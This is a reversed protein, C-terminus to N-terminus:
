KWQERDKVEIMLFCCPCEFPKREQGMPPMPPVRALMDSRLSSSDSVDSVAGDSAGDSIGIPAIDYMSIDLSFPTAVTDAFESKEEAFPKEDRDEDQQSLAEMALKEKHEQTYQLFRRRSLVAQLLRDRLIPDAKQFLEEIHGKDTTCFRDINVKEAKVYRDVSAPTRIAISIRKLSEVVKHM